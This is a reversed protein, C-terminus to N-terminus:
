HHTRWKQFARRDHPRLLNGTLYLALLTLLLIPPALYNVLNLPLFFAAPALTLLAMPLVTRPFRLVSHRAGGRSLVSHPSHPPRLLLAPTTLLLAALLGLASSFLMIQQPDYPLRAFRALLIATIQFLIATAWIAAGRWPSERLDAYTSFFSALGYWLFLALMGPLLTHIPTAYAPLLYAFLDRSLLLAAALLLLAATGLRGLRFLTANARRSQGHSHARAAIGYSSAWLTVALFALLQAIRFPISYSATSALPSEGEQHAAVYRVGWLSLFGFLMILLLRVLAWIAFRNLRPPTWRPAYPLVDGPQFNTNVNDSTNFSQPLHRNLLFAYLLFPVALSAAYALILCLATSSGYLYGTQFHDPNAYWAALSSLVLLLVAALLEMGAAAAYARLGRLMAALHQYLALLTLTMGCALLFAYASFGLYFPLFLIDSFFVWADPGWVADRIWPTFAVLLITVAIGTLTLRLWQRHLWSRLARPGANRLFAATYREAVDASGFMVLATLPNIFELAPQYIGFAAKGTEGLLHAVLLTRLFALARSVM